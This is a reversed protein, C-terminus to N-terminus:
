MSWGSKLEIEPMVQLFPVNRFYLASAHLPQQILSETQAHILLCLQMM